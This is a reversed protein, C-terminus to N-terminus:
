VVVPHPCPASAIMKVQLVSKDIVTGFITVGLGQGRHMNKLRAELFNLRLNVVEMQRVSCMNTAQIGVENLKAMMKDCRASTAAVDSLLLVPLVALFAFAILMNRRQSEVTGGYVPVFGKARETNLARSLCDLSLAWIALVMGGLGRSWGLSLQRLPTDLGIAAGHVQEMWEAGTEDAPDSSDIATAVEKVHDRAMAAGVLSGVWWGCILCPVIFILLISLAVVSLQYTWDWGLEDAKLLAFVNGVGGLVCGISGVWAIRRACHLLKADEAAVAQTGLGLMTLMGKPGPRLGITLDALPLLLSAFVIGYLGASVEQLDNPEGTIGLGAPEDATQMTAIESAPRLSCALVRVVIVCQALRYAISGAGTTEDCMLSGIIEFERWYELVVPSGIIKDEEEIIAEAEAEIGGALSKGVVAGAATVALPNADVRSGAAGGDGAGDGDGGAGVGFFEGVAEM